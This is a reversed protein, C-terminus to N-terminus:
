RPHNQDGHKWRRYMERAYARLADRLVDDPLIERLVTMEGRRHMTEHIGHLIPLAEDDSSKFGKGATGMHAPDVTEVAPHGRRGTVVCRQTRLWDLYARDRVM